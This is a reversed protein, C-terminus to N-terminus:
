FCFCHVENLEILSPLPMVNPVRDTVIILIYYIWYLVFFGIFGLSEMDIWIRLFQIVFRYMLSTCFPMLFRRWLCYFVLVVGAQSDSYSLSLYRTLVTLYSPLLSVHNFWQSTPGRM